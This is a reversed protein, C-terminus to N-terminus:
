FNLASFNHWDDEMEPGDEVVFGARIFIDQMEELVLQLPHRSGAPLNRLPLTPDIGLEVSQDLANELADKTERYITEAQSKLQNIKAGYLKKEAPEVNRFAEFVESIKGKKSLLQLRFAELSAPNDPRAAALIKEIEQILLEM